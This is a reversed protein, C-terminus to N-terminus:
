PTAAKPRSLQLVSPHVRVGSRAVSDLNVEFGVQTDSIHLCFVSGVVCKDSEESISLVPHGSIASFLASRELASLTGIYLADCENPIRADGALLRRVVVPRGSPQTSGQLLNDAYETPGIVCLRLQQSEVPWRAYSLIGMVVQTVTVARQEAPYSTDALSVSSLVCLLMLSFACLLGMAPHRPGLVDM